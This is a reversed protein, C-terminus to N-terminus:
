LRWFSLDFSLDPPRGVRPFGPSLFLKSRVPTSEAKSPIMTTIMPPLVGCKTSNDSNANRAPEAPKPVANCRHAFIPTAIAFITEISRGCLLVRNGFTAYRLRNPNERTESTDNPKHTEDQSSLQRDNPDPPFLERPVMASFHADENGTTPYYAKNPYNTNTPYHAGDTTDTSAHMKVHDAKLEYDNGLKELEAQQAQVIGQQQTMYKEIFKIVIQEVQEEVEEAMSPIQAPPPQTLNNTAENKNNEHSQTLNSEKQFKELQDKLEKNKSKEIEFKRNFEAMAENLATQIDKIANDDTTSKDDTTSSSTSQLFKEANTKDAYTAYQPARLLAEANRRWRLIHVPATSPTPADKKTDDQEEHQKLPRHRHHPSPFHQVSSPSPPFVDPAM